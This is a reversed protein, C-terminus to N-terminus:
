SGIRTRRTRGGLSTGIASRASLVAGLQDADIAANYLLKVNAM